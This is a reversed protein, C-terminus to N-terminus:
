APTRADLRADRVDRVEGTQFGFVSAPLRINLAELRNLFRPRVGVPRLSGTIRRNEIGTQQFVFLDQLTIIDGEMGQVESVRVVKRTGDPM